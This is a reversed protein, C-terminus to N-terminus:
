STQPLQIRENRRTQQRHRRLDLRHQRSTAPFETQTQNGTSLSRRSRRTKGIKFYANGLYFLQDATLGATQNYFAVCQRYAEQAQDKQNLKEFATGMNYQALASVNAATHADQKGILRLAQQSAALAEKAQGLASYSYAM